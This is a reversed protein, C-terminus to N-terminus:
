DCSCCFIGCDAEEECIPCMRPPREPIAEAALRWTSPLFLAMLFCPIVLVCRLLFMVRQRSSTSLIGRGLPPFFLFVLLLVVALQVLLPMTSATRAHLSASSHVM